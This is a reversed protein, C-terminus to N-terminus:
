FLQALMQMSVFLAQAVFSAFLSHKLMRKCSRHARYHVVVVAPVCLSYVVMPCPMRAHGIPPSLITERAPESSACHMHCHVGQLLPSATSNNCPLMGGLILAGAQAAARADPGLSLLDDAVPKWWLLFGAAPTVLAAVVAAKTMASAIVPMGLGSQPDKLVVQLGMPPHLVATACRAFRVLPLLMLACFLGNIAAVSLLLPVLLAKNTRWEDAQM